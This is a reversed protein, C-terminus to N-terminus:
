DIKKVNDKRMQKGFSSTSKEQEKKNKAVMISGKYYIM